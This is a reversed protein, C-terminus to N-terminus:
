DASGLDRKLGTVSLNVQAVTPKVSEKKSISLAGTSLSVIAILIFKKM